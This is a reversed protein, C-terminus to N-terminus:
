RDLVAPAGAARRVFTRLSEIVKGPPQARRGAAVPSLPGVLVEGCGGIIAAATFHADQEPIEGAAIADRLVRAVLEAYRARYALREADVAPDVPEALLAWALRRNHLARQAFVVLVTELRDLEPAEPPM